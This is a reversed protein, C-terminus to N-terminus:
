DLTKQLNKKRNKANNLFQRRTECDVETWHTIEYLSRHCGLCIDEENLCCQRICPSTTTDM